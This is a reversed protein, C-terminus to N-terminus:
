IAQPSLMAMPSTISTKPAMTMALKPQQDTHSARLSALKLGSSSGPSTTAPVPTSAQRQILAPVLGLSQAGSSKAVILTSAMTVTKSTIGAIVLSGRASTM